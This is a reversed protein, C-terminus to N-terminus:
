RPSDTTPWGLQGNYGGSVEWEVLFRTAVVHIGTPCDIISGGKFRYITATRGKKDTARVAPKEVYCPGLISEWVEWKARVSGTLKLLTKENKVFVRLNNIPISKTAFGASYGSLLEKPAPPLQEQAQAQTAFVLLFLLVRVACM